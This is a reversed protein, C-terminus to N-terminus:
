VMKSNDSTLYYQSKSIQTLPWELDNFITGNLLKPVIEYKCEMTVTATDQITESITLYQDCNKEYGKCEVGGNHLGRQFIALVNPAASVLITHSSPPSFTQHYTSGNRWFVPTHCVSLRVSMKRCCLGRKVYCRATIFLFRFVYAITDCWGRHRLHKKQTHSQHQRLVRVM